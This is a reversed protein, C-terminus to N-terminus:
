ARFAAAAGLSNRSDLLDLADLPRGIADAAAYGYLRTAGQNWSTVLGSQDCSFIADSSQEVQMALLRNREESRRLSVLLSEINEAMRNFAVLCQATEPPGAVAIRVGYDGQGFRRASAALAHLPRVSGRLVVLTVGLTLGAGLLLIGLTEWF